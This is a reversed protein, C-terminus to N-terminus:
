SILAPIFVFAGSILADRISHLIINYIGELQSMNYNIVTENRQIQRLQFSLLREKSLQPFAVAQAFDDADLVRYITGAQDSAPTPLTEAGVVGEYFPIMNTLVDGTGRQEPKVIDLIPEPLGVVRLFTIVFGVIGAIQVVAGATKFSLLKPDTEYILFNSPGSLLNTTTVLAIATALVGLGAVYARLLQIAQRRHEQQIEGHAQLVDSTQKLLWDRRDPDLEVIHEWIELLNEEPPVGLRASTENRGRRRSYGSM